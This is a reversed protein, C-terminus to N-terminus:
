PFQSATDSSGNQCPRLALATSRNGQFRRDLQARERGFHCCLNCLIEADFIERRPFELDKSAHGIAARVFEDSVPRVDGLIRDFPVQLVDNSFEVRIVAGM